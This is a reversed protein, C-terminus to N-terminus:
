MRILEVHLTRIINGFKHALHTYTKKVFTSRIIKKDYCPPMKLRLPEISNECLLFSKGFPFILYGVCYIRFRATSYYARVKGVETTPDFYEFSNENFLHVHTPDFSADWANYYPVRIVIRAGPKTIRYLEEMTKIVDSLHELTDVMIVEGFHNTPLPWPFKMLDHVVDVGPLSASDVNLYDDLIFNGCGLHLKTKM